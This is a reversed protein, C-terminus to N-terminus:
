AYLVDSLPCVRVYVGGFGIFTILTFLHRESDYSGNDRSIRLRMRDSCVVALILGGKIKETEPPDIIHGM